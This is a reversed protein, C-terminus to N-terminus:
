KSFGDNLAKLLEVLAEEAEADLELNGVPVGELIDRNVNRDVEPPPWNEGPVDRTNYFHVVDELTKFVGNHMYAKPFGNGPRQAVNRVTPVKHKGDNVFALARWDPNPHDALIEGLGFDVFFGGDPNIPFGDDDLERDMRYFPNEPNKPVGINEFTFDTFLPPEGNPGPVTSTHCPSCYEGFEILGDFEKDSLIGQPDLAAKDGEALGCEEPDNGAILCARWYADFKSDFPSVESSGEYAAISLGIRDYTPDIGAPRCDLSGPGWVEEFLGAYSTAAVHECVAQKSPMNQEVDVLFPGLAQEAAPSGLREGTARGDWLMGGVFEENATDFHFVPSYTAYATTPPKRNGFRTPVAGRYVAGHLNIGAIDGTWGTKPDHCTACSQSRAPQSIADFFLEKGLQEMPMLGDAMSSGVVLLLAAGLALLVASRKTIM